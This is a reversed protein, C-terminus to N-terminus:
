ADTAAVLDSVYTLCNDLAGRTTTIIAIQLKESQGEGQRLVTAGFAHRLYEITPAKLLRRRADPSLNSIDLVVQTGPLDCAGLAAATRVASHYEPPLSYQASLPYIFNPSMIRLAPHLSPQMIEGDEEGTPGTAHLSKM